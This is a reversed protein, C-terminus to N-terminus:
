KGGGPLFQRWDGREIEDAVDRVDTSRPSPYERLMRAVAAVVRAGTDTVSVDVYTTYEHMWFSWGLRGHPKAEGQEDNTFDCRGITEMLAAVLRDAPAADEVWPVAILDVDRALSGHVAVAYGMERAKVRVEDLRERIFRHCESPRTALMHFRPGAVIDIRDELRSFKRSGVGPGRAENVLARALGAIDTVQQELEAEGQSRGHAAEAEMGMEFAVMAAIATPDKGQAGSHFERLHAQAALERRRTAQWATERTQGPAEPSPDAPLVCEGGGRGTCHDCDEETLATGDGGETHDPTEHAPPGGPPRTVHAAELYLIYRACRGADDARVKMNEGEIDPRKPPTPDTM